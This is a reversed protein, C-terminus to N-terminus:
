TRGSQTRTHIEPGNLLGSELFRYISGWFGSMEAIVRDVCRALLGMPSAAGNETADLEHTVAALELCSIRLIATQRTQGDYLGSVDSVALRHWARWLFETKSIDYIKLADFALKALAPTIERRALVEAFFAVPDTFQGQHERM